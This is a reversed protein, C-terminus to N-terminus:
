HFGQDPGPGPKMMGVILLAFPGILLGIIAWLVVNRNKGKALAGAAVGFLVWALFIEM